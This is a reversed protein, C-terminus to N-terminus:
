LRPTSRSRTWQGALGADTPRNTFGTTQDAGIRWYGDYSKPATFNQDRGVRIGDVFLEMGEAGVVGALHHWQGDNIPNRSFITRYAGNNIAFNVRGSNDLYLVRDTNGSTSTGTASDGFGVIRGGRISTTKVWAEVSVAADSATVDKTTIKPTAGGASTVATDSDGILAGAAGLTVSTPTGHLDGIQDLLLTGSPEGLRWLHSAGGSRVTTLYASRRRGRLRHHLAVVREM